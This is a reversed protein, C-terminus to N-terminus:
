VADPANTAWHIDVVTSGSETSAPGSPRTYMVCFVVEVDGCRPKMM